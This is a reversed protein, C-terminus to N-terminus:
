IIGFVSVKCLWSEGGRRTVGLIAVGASGLVGCKPVKFGQVLYCCGQKHINWFYPCCVGTTSAEKQLCRCDHAMALFLLRNTKAVEIRQPRSLIRTSYAYM